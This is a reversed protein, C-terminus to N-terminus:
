ESTSIITEESINELTGLCGADPNKAFHLSLARDRERIASSCSPVKESIADKVDSQWQKFFSVTQQPHSELLHRCAEEQAETVWTTSALKKEVLQDFFQTYSEKRQMIDEVLKEKEDRLKNSQDEYANSVTEVLRSFAHLGEQKMEDLRKQHSSHREQWTNCQELLINMQTVVRQSEDRLPVLEETHGFHELFAPESIDVVGECKMCFVQLDGSSSGRALKKKSVHAAKKARMTETINNVLINLKLTKACCKKVLTPQRCLPCTIRRSARYSTGGKDYETRLLLEMCEECFSHMCDLCRADRLLGHCIACELHKAIPVIKNDKDMILSWWDWYGFDILIIQTHRQCINAFSM